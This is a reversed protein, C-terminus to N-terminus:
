AFLRGRSRAWDDPHKDGKSLNCFPCLLQLNDPNNSGGRKLPIVHDAHFRGKGTKILVANCAGCLGNQTEFLAAIDAATHKGPANRKLADRNRIHTLKKEPNKRVWERVSERRKELHAQRNKRNKARGIEPNKKHEERLKALLKERIKRYQASRIARV